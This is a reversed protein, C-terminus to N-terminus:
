GAWAREASSSKLYRPEWSGISAVPATEQLVRARLLADAAPEGWPSALVTHGRDEIAVRHREAGSGLFLTRPPVATELVTRLDGAHPAILAELRHPGTDFCAGFVREGRADFLAYHVGTVEEAPVNLAAAALSSVPYLPIGLARALGKATAAAVRVGTFSGPGEGVV